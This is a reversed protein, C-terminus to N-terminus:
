RLLKLFNEFGPQLESWYFHFFCKKFLKGYSASFCQGQLFKFFEQLVRKDIFFTPKSLNGFSLPLMGSNSWKRVGLESQKKIYNNEVCTSLLFHSFTLSDKRAEFYYQWKIVSYTLIFSVKKNWYDSSCM